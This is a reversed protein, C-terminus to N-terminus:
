KLRKALEKRLADQGKIAIDTVLEGDCIMMTTPVSTINYTSVAPSYIGKGDNVNIWPLNQSTVVSGWAAKDSDLCVSYIELGKSHFEDYVPKLGEINLMTQVPDSSDWFHLLIVKSDVSSLARRKGSMDPLNLDIFGLQDASVLRNSLAMGNVRREAEKELAAVYKSQPYVTKLSDAVNRFFIADTPQSFVPMQGVTEYLVPIVSMSKSNGMVYKVDDRYHKVYLKSAAVPDNELSLLEALFQAYAKDVEALKVSGESGSVEYNGLTDAKVVATEGTELLLAAVRKDGFFLYIFEPQGKAVPVSFSFSGDSGTKVTDVTKYVNVDLQRVVVQKKDLGEITGKVRAKEACSCVGLLAAAFLFIKYNKM